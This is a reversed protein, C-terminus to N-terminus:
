IVKPLQEHDVILIELSDDISLLINKMTPMFIKEIEHPMDLYNYENLIIDRRVYHPADGSIYIDCGEAKAIPWDRSGGGGVIGIKKVKSKGKNILLSYDVKFTEKALKAFENVDMEEKLYGIRMCPEDEPQYVNELGLAATLADNMGGKGSDFNTHFSYVVFNYKELEQVLNRKIEDRKLVQYLTGYIFPHHSIIMDPKFEIASPLVDKDFDLCLLIKHVEKPLKGYMKGVYDHYRAALRKPFQKALAKLLRVSDM